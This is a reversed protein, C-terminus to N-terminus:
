IFKIGVASSSSRACQCPSSRLPPSHVIAAKAQDAVCCAAGLELNYANGLFAYFKVGIYIDESLVRYELRPKSAFFNLQSKSTWSTGGSFHALWALRYSSYYNDVTDLTRPM